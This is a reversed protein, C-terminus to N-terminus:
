DESPLTWIPSGTAQDGLRHDALEEEAIKLIIGRIRKADEQHEDEFNESFRSNRAQDLQSSLMEEVRIGQAAAELAQCEPCPNELKKIIQDLARQVEPTQTAGLLTFLTDTETEHRPCLTSTIESDSEKKEIPM